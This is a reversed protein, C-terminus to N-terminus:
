PLRYTRVRGDPCAVALRAGDPSGTVALAGGGEEAGEAVARGTAVDFVTVGPTGDSCSRVDRGVAVHGDGVRELGTFGCPVLAIETRDTGVSRLIRVGDAVREALFVAGSAAMVGDAFDGSPLTEEVLDAGM